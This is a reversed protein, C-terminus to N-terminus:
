GVRQAAARRARSLAEEVEAHADAARRVDAVRESLDPAQHADLRAHALALRLGELQHLLARRRADLRAAAAEAERVTHLRQRVAALTSQWAEATRPDATAVRGELEAQEAELAARTAPAALESLQIYGADLESASSHVEALGEVLQPGRLEEINRLAADLEAMFASTPAPTPTPLAAPVPDPEPLPQVSLLRMSEIARHGHAFLGIGWPVAWWPFGGRSWVEVLVGTFVTAHLLLGRLVKNRATGSPDGTPVEEAYIPWRALPRWRTEGEPRALEAGTLGGGRLKDRLVQEDWTKVKDEQQIHWVPM